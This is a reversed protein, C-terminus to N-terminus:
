GLYGGRSPGNHIFALILLIIIIVAYILYEYKELYTNINEIAKM